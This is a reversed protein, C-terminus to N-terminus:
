SIYWSQNTMFPHMTLNFCLEHEPCHDRQLIRWLLRTQFEAIYGLFKCCLIGVQSAYLAEQYHSRVIGLVEEPKQSPEKTILESGDEVDVIATLSPQKLGSSQLLRERNPKQLCLSLGTTSELNMRKSLGGQIGARPRITARRWWEDDLQLAQMTIQDKQRCENEALTGELEELAELTILSNLNCLAYILPAVKEVAWLKHDATSQVILVTPPISSSELADRELVEINASFLGSGPAHEDESTPDLYALPLCSRLLLLIPKLEQSKPSSLLPHAESKVM